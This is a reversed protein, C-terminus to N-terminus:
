EDRRMSIVEEVVRAQELIRDNTMILLRLTLGYVDERTYHFVTLICM